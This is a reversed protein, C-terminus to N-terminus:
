ARVAAGPPALTRRPDAVLDGPAADDEGTAARNLALMTGLRKRRLGSSCSHAPITLAAALGIMESAHRLDSIRPRPLAWYSVPNQCGRKKAHGVSSM